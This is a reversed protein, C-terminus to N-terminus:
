ERGAYFALIQRIQQKHEVTLQSAQQYQLYFRLRATKSVVQRAVKDLSALDKIKGRELLPGFMRRGQPADIIYIEPDETLRVLINRWKLDMHVFGATHMQRVIESLRRSVENLWLPDQLREDSRKVLTLLDSTDALAETVLVAEKGDRFKDQWSDTEVFAVPRATPIGLRQFLKLNRLEAAARSRGFWRRGFRGGRHYSKVYYVKDQWTMRNLRSLLTHDLQDSVQLSLMAPQPLEGQQQEWQWEAFPNQWVWAPLQKHQEFYLRRARLYVDRWFLGDEQLTQRLSKGSYRRMFRFLDRRSFTGESVEMISYFLGGVDKVRWRLPTTKRIQARHLDMLVLRASGAARDENRLMFHCIYCDRHNIGSKHMTATIVAVEDILLRKYTAPVAEGSLFIEELSRAGSLERTVIVSRRQAPNWGDEFLGVSELTDIGAQNLRRIAVFENTASVVPLRLQFLNKFIERWGCGSHLKAFYGEGGAEFRITRRDKVDRYVEGDIGSLATYLDPNPFHARLEPACYCIMM